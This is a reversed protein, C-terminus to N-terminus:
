RLSYGSLERYQRRSLYGRLSVPPPYPTPAIVGRRDKPRWKNDYRRVPADCIQQFCFHPDELMELARQPDYAAQHLLKFAFEPSFPQWGPRSGKWLRSCRQLFADLDEESCIARESLGEAVRMRRVRELSSPSYVLKATLSPDLVPVGVGLGAESGGRCEACFSGGGAASELFFLPLSPVQHKPGVPVAHRRRSGEDFCKIASLSGTTAPTPAGAAGGGSSTKAFAAPGSGNHKHKNNPNVNQVQQTEPPAADTAAALGDDAKVADQGGQSAPVSPCPPLADESPGQQPLQGEEEGGRTEADTAAAFASEDSAEAFVDTQPSRKAGREASPDAGEGLSVENGEAAAVEELPSADAASSLGGEGLSPACTDAGPQATPDGQHSPEAEKPLADAPSTERRQQSLGSLSQNQETRVRHRVRQPSSAEAAAPPLSFADGFRMEEAFAAAETESLSPSHSDEGPVAGEEQKTPRGGSFM